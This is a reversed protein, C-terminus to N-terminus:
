KKVEDNDKNSKNNVFCFKIDHGRRFMLQCNNKNGCDSCSTEVLDVYFWNGRVPDLLQCKM